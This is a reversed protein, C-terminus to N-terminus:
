RTAGTLTMASGTTAGMEPDDTNHVPVVVASVSRVGPPTHALLAEPIADTEDVPTTDPTAIPVALIVYV